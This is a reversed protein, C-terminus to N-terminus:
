RPLIQKREFRILSDNDYNMFVFHKGNELSDFLEWQGSLKDQVKM